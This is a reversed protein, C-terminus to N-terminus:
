KNNDTKGYTPTSDEVVVVKDVEQAKAVQNPKAQVNDGSMKNDLEIAKMIDTLDPKAKVKKLEGKVTVYKEVEMEGAVIKALIERKKATTLLNGIEAEHIAASAKETVKSTIKATQEEMYAKVGENRKLIGTKNGATKHSINPWVKLCANIPLMGGLVLDAWKKFAPKLPKM